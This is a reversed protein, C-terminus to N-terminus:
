DQLYRRAVDRAEKVFTEGGGDGYYADWAKPHWLEIQSGNGVFVVERGEGLHERLDARLVFRWQTDCDVSVISARWRRLFDSTLSPDARMREIKEDLVPATLVTVVPVDMAEGATSKVLYLSRGRPQDEIVERIKAPLTLQYKSNLRHPFHDVFNM